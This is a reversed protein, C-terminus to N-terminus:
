GPSRTAEAPSHATRQDGATVTTGARDLDLEFWVVNPENQVAGWRHALQDLIYLGWGSARDSAPIVAPEFGKGFDSVEVRVCGDALEGRLEMEEEPGLAAHRVVNTVLESVILRLDTAVRAPLAHGLAQDIATRAQAVAAPVPPFTAYFDM